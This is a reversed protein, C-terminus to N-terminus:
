FVVNILLFNLYNIIFCKNEIPWFKFLLYLRSFCYPWFFFSINVVTLCCMFVGFGFGVSVVLNFGNCHSLMWKSLVKHDAKFPLVVLGVWGGSQGKKRSRLQWVKRCVFKIEIIELSSHRFLNVLKSTRAQPPERQSCQLTKSSFLHIRTSHMPDLQYVREYGGLCVCLSVVLVCLLLPRLRAFTKRKRYLEDYAAQARGNMRFINRIM